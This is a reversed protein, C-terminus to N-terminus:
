QLLNAIKEVDAKFNDDTEMLNFVTEVCAILSTHDWVGVNNIIGMETGIERYSLDTYMRCLYVCIQRYTVYPRKRSRTMIDRVPCGYFKAVADFIRFASFNQKIYVHRGKLGPAVYYSVNKNGM